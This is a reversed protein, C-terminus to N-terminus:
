LALVPVLYPTAAGGTIVDIIVAAAGVGIVKLVKGAQERSINPTMPAGFTYPDPGSNFNNQKKPYVNTYGRGPHQVDWHNAHKGKNNTPMWVNGKKDVWGSGSGNPNKVKRTGGKPAEFDPHNPPNNQM